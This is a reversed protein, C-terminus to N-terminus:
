VGTVTDALLNGQITITPNTGNWFLEIANSINNVTANGRFENNTITVVASSTLSQDSSSIGDYGAYGILNKDITAQASNSVWIGSGGTRDTATTPNTFSTAGAGIVNQSISINNVGAVYIDAHGTNAASGFGHISIGAITINNAQLQLGTMLNGGDRIEIEPAPVKSLSPEDGTGARGDAGTGVTGGVGLLGANSDGINATQTRGDLTTFTDTFTPLLTTPSIVAVGATLQNSPIMFISTEVGAAPNIATTGPSPNPNAVQDLGANGLANSNTIFQRLSGQGTNNTNVITDFNYGFDIGTVNSSSVKVATLSQVEQNAVANLTALTATTNALADIEAPKEGGVRDTVATVTGATADTRFTQVAVLGTANSPNPRSSTVTSNVVRIQYDGPLVGTFTYNGGGSTTTNKIYAGTSSYLEVIAGDRGSIAPTSVPRGAGGGYNPDEFVTGSISAPQAIPVDTPTDGPANPDDTLVGGSPGGVYEVTARNSITAPLNSSNVIVRFKVVVENDNTITPTTDVAVSGSIQAPGNIRRNTVFPMVGANDPVAVNNMTTSNAVYTTGLPINDQLTTGPAIVSGTNRISITYELTDGAAVATGTSGSVKAVTKNANIRALLSPYMCSGLDYGAESLSTLETNVGTALNWRWNRGNNAILSAQGDPTFALSTTTATTSATDLLTAVPSAGTVGDVRYLRFESSPGTVLYMVGSADFAVDGSAGSSSLLAPNNPNDAITIASSRTNTSPDYRYLINSSSMYLIGDPSFGMRNQGSLSTPTNPVLVGTSIHSVGDFYYLLNGASTGAGDLYYIRRRGNSDLFPAVGLTVISNGALTTIPASISPLLPDYTRLSKVSPNFVGYLVSCTLSPPATVNTPDSASNNSTNTEGGGAVTVQNTLSGLATSNVNVYFQFTSNNNGATALIAASNQCTIVQPSAGDSNCTWNAANTGSTAVPGAKGNNVTLGAPLTDTVTIVGSSTGTGNNSVTITYLGLGGASFDGTHSTTVTLDPIPPSAIAVQYDEVEGDNALGVAREDTSTTSTNDTLTSSTFRFRAFTNGASGINIGTWNLPGSVTGNTVNVSQYESASFFGDKNFDIWAHLTGTGTATINAAPIDYINSGAIMSPFSSIGDDDNGDGNATTSALSTPDTDITAGLRSTGTVYHSAEGYNNTGSSDPATGSTPADGYDEAITFGMAYGDGQGLNRNVDTITYVLTQYTGNFELTGCGGNSNASNNQGSVALPNCVATNAPQQITNVQTGSVEFYFNGSLRTMSVAANNTQKTAAFDVLGNDLNAFHVRPNTVPRDFNITIQHTGDANDNQNGVALIVYKQNSPGTTYWSEPFNSGSFFNSYFLADTSRSYFRSGSDTNVPNSITVTASTNGITFSADDNGNVTWNSEGLARASGQHVLLAISSLLLSTALCGTLQGAVKSVFSSRLSTIQNTVKIGQRDRRVHTSSDLKRLSSLFSKM